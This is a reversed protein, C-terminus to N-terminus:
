FISYPDQIQFDQSFQSDMMTLKQEQSEIMVEISKTVESKVKIPQDHSPFISASHQFPPQCYSEPLRIGM